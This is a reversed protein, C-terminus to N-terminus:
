DYIVMTKSQIRKPTDIKPPSKALEISKLMKNKMQVKPIEKHTIKEEIQNGVLEIMRSKISNTEAYITYTENQKNPILATAYGDRTMSEQRYISKGDSYIFRILSGNAINNGYKDKLIGATIQYQNKDARYQSAIPIHICSGAQMYYATIPQSDIARYTNVIPSLTYEKESFYNESDSRLLNQYCDLKFVISQHSHNSDPNVTKPSRYDVWHSLTDQPNILLVSYFFQKKNSTLCLNATGEIIGSQRKTLVRFGGREPEVTLAIPQTFSYLIASWEATNSKFHFTDHTYTFHTNENLWIPKDMNQECSYISWLSIVLIIIRM